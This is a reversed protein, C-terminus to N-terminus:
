CRGPYKGTAEVFGDGKEELAQTIEDMTQCVYTKNKRNELAKQFMGQPIVNELLDTVTSCLAAYNEDLAVTQKEGNSLDPAM